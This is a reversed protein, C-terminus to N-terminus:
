PDVPAPEPLDISDNAEVYTLKGFDLFDKSDVIVRVTISVKSMRSKKAPERARAGSRSTRTLPTM